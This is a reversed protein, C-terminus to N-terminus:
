NFDTCHTVETYWTLFSFNVRLTKSYCKQTDWKSQTIIPSVSSGNHFSNESESWVTKVIIHQEFNALVTVSYHVCRIYSYITNEFRHCCMLSPQNFHWQKVEANTIIETMKQKKKSVKQERM